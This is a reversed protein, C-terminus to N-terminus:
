YIKTLFVVVEADVANAVVVVVTVANLVTVVILRMVMIFVANVIANIILIVIHALNEM